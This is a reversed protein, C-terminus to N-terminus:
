NDLVQMFLSILQYAQNYRNLPLADNTDYIDHYNTYNGLLYIFFSPVGKETFFYHDSNAAKGRINIAPLLSLTNNLFVLTDFQKRFETGNVITAGNEGTGMLDMNLLFKIRPLPFLPYYTYYLSGKLGAEEGAFCIFVISCKTKQKSYKRALDLLMAVGSANDNAGPFYADPGMRGLHDYHATLVLFSDPYTDGKVYGIVNQTQRGASFVPQIDLNIHYRFTKFIEKKIHLIPFKGMETSVTWTFKDELFIIGRCKIENQTVQRLNETHTVHAILTQDIVVFDNRKKKKSFKAWLSPNDITASDLRIFDYEGKIAPCDAGVIFDKGPVLTLGDVDAHVDDPFSNVPFSFEQFYSDEFSRLGLRKFEGAIYKAAKLDGDNVYGRGEYEPSTLTKIVQRAYTSDQSLGNNVTGLCIIVIYLLRQLM